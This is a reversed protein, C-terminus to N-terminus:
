IISSPAMNAGSLVVVVHTGPSPEFVGARLAAVTTAAAPELALKTEDWLWSQAAVIDNDTVLVSLDIWRRALWPHDGISRAGLSSSAVGGVEVEVQHGASLSANLSNCGEPEAAVVVLDDRFWSAIGGILGGGGVAVVVADFDDLQEAMERGITGQGAMVLAQDYAHAEFAGTEDRFEQAAALAEDYYGDVLRVDAGYRAIRDIKELPSTSPVFITATYGLRQAAYATAIGFNGGSAAVVGEDGVESATLLSFAGRPKFSGTVQTHELKLSLEYDSSLANGLRLVSTRRVHPAIRGAAAEIDSRTVEVVNSFM